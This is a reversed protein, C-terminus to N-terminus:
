QAATPALEREIKSVVGNTFWISMRTQVAPKHNEVLRYIYDWRDQRFLNNVLPSGVINAVENKSMGERIAAARDAEIVNGQQVPAKYPINICASLAAATGIALLTNRFFLKM